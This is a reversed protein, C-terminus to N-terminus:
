VKPPVFKCINLKQNQIKLIYQKHGTKQKCNLSQQKSLPCHFKVCFMEKMWSCYYNMQGLLVVNESVTLM